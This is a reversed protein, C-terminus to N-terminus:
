PNERHHLLCNAHGFHLLIRRMREEWTHREVLTRAASARKSAEQPLRVCADVAKQLSMVDGPCCFFATAESLTDRITPLDSTVIPRNSAMYEFMKLPSMNNRYHPLDPFPMALIDCASLAAPVESSSVEGTFLVSECGLGLQQARRRYFPLDDSPGGVIFIFFRPDRAALQLLDDVGKEMGLTRLRGVYGIITRDTRIQFRDRAQERTPSSLFGSLDVADGEVIVLEPRVGWSQLERAMPSTLCVIRRCRNCQRVFRARCLRPLRHLELLIPVGAELLAPLLAPSRTYALDFSGRRLIRLLGRRLIANMVWLGLIGPFFRSAIPDFSGITQLLVPRPVDHYGWFDRGTTNHRYPCLITVAHGLRQLARCVAAVQHGHARESPLRVNTCYAIQLQYNITSLQYKFYFICSGAFQLRITM